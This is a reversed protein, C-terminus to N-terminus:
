RKVDPNAVGIFNKIGKVYDLSVTSKDFTYAVQQM